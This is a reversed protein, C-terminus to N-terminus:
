KLKIRPKAGAEKLKVKGNGSERSGGAAAQSPQGSRFNTLVMPVAVLVGLGVVVAAFLPWSAPQAVEPVLGGPNYRSDENAVPAGDGRIPALSVGLSRNVGDRLAAPSTYTIAYESQMNVAYTEYLRTLQEEDEAYGYVGGARGALDQLGGEDIGTMEDVYDAPVGLGVTSISFGAPGIREIVDDASSTSANDMGDTLVIIAKRGEIGDLQDIAVMLASYMATEDGPVLRDVASGLADRDATIEQETQIHTDFSIVGAQDIDRMRDIFEHAAAKASELKGEVGMSGSVDMVLMTTLPGVEGVGDIQDLPIPQGNETIIFRSADVALPEGNADTISVYFTVRPFNSTDVQTIRVNEEAQAFATVAMALLTLIVTLLRTFKM